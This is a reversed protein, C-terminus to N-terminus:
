QKEIDRKSLCLYGIVIDRCVRYNEHLFYLVDVRTQTIDTSWLWQFLKCCNAMIAVLVQKVTTTRLWWGWNGDIVIIAEFSVFLVSFCFLLKIFLHLLPIGPLLLIGCEFWSVWVVTRCTVVNPAKLLGSQVRGEVVKEISAQVWNLFLFCGSPIKIAVSPDKLVPEL